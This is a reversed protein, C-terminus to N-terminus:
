FRDYTYFYIIFKFGQYVSSAKRVKVGVLIKRKLWQCTKERKKPKISKLSKLLLISKFLIFFRSVKAYIFELDKSFKQFFNGSQAMSMVGAFVRYKQVFIM